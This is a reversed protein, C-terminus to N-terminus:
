FMDVDSFYRHEFAEKPNLREEQNYKLCCRIFDKAGKSVEINKHEPFEVNFANM